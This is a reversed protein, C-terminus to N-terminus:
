DYFGVIKINGTSCMVNKGDTLYVLVKGKVLKDSNKTIGPGFKTDVIAGAERSSNATEEIFSQEVQTTETQKM